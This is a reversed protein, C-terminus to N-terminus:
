HILQKQKQPLIVDCCHWFRHHHNHQMSEKPLKVVFLVIEIELQAVWATLVLIVLVVTM